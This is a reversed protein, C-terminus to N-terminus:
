PRDKLVLLGTHVHGILVPIHGEVHWLEAGLPTDNGIYFRIGDLSLIGRKKQPLVRMHGKRLCKLANWVHLNHSNAYTRMPASPGHM